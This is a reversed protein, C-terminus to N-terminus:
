SRKGWALILCVCPDENWDCRMWVNQQQRGKTQVFDRFHLMKQKRGVSWLKLVLCDFPQFFLIQSVASCLFMSDSGFMFSSIGGSTRNCTSSCSGGRERREATSTQRSQSSRAWWAGWSQVQTWRVPQNCSAEINEFWNETQGGSRQETKGRRLEGRNAESRLDTVRAM